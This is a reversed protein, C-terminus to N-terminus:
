KNELCFVISRDASHWFHIHCATIPSCGRFRSVTNEIDGDAYLYAGHNAFNKIKLIQNKGIEIM